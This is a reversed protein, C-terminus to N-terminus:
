DDERDTLCKEVLYMVAFLGAALVVGAAAAGITVLGISIEAYAETWPQM